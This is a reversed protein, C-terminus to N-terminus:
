HCMPRKMGVVPRKSEPDSGVSNIYDWNATREEGDHADTEDDSMPTLYKLSAVSRNSTRSSRFLVGPVQMISCTLSLFCAVLFFLPFFILILHDWTFINSNSSGNSLSFETLRRVCDKLTQLESEKELLESQTSNLQTELETIQGEQQKILLQSLKQNLESPLVGAFQCSGPIGRGVEHDTVYPAEAQVIFRKIFIPSCAFLSFASVEIGRPFFSGRYAMRRILAFHGFVARGLHAMNLVAYMFYSCVHFEQNDVFKKISFIM